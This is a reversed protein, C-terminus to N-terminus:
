SIRLNTLGMERRVRRFLRANSRLAPPMPPTRTALPEVSASCRTRKGPSSAARRRHPPCVRQDQLGVPSHHRAQSLLRRCDRRCGRVAERHLLGGAASLGACGRRSRREPGGALHGEGAAGPGDPSRRHARSSSNSARWASATMPCCQGDPIGAGSQRLNLMSTLACPREQAHQYRRAGDRIPAPRCLRSRHRRGRLVRDCSSRHESCGQSRGGGVVAPVGLERAVIAAHCTRGGRETVIAAAIKM